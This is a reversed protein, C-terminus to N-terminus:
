PHCLPIADVDDRAMIETHDGYAKCDSNGYKNDVEAKAAERRNKDVDCVAVIKIEPINLFDGSHHRMKFGTGVLALNIKDNSPANTDDGLVHRPIFTPAAVAATASAIFRRRPISTRLLNM